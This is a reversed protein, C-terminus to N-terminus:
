EARTLRRVLERGVRLRRNVVVFFVIFIANSIISQPNV